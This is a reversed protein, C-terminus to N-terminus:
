IVNLTPKTTHSKHNTSKNIILVLVFHNLFTLSFYFYNAKRNSNATFQRKFLTSDGRINKGELASFLNFLNNFFSFFHKNHKRHSTSRWIKRRYLHGFATYIMFNFKMKYKNLNSKSNYLVCILPAVNSLLGLCLESFM